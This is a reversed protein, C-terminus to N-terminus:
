GINGFEVMDWGDPGIAVFKRVFDDILTNDTPSKLTLGFQVITHVCHDLEVDYNDDSEYPCLPDLDVQRPLFDDDSEDRLLNSAIIKLQPVSIAGHLVVRASKQYNAGDRYMYSLVTNAAPNGALIAFSTPDFLHQLDEHNVIMDLITSFGVPNVLSLVGTDSEKVSYDGMGFILIYDELKQVCREDDDESEVLTIIGSVPDVLCQNIFTRGGDWVSKLEAAILPTPSPM